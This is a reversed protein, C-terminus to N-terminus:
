LPMRVLLRRAEDPQRPLISAVVLSIDDGPRGDELELADALLREALM